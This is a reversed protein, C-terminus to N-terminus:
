FTHRIGFEYGTSAGGAATVGLGVNFSKGNDKNSIKAYNVYLASRKSLNYVYGLAIHNADNAVGSAKVTGYSARIQGAGVPVQVGISQARTKNGSTKNEGWLAMVRAVGFDYSGGINSQTLDGLSSIKTKTIGYAVSVPGNAYGIRLGTVKGDDATAGANSNNEGMAYMVQGFLGGMEPLHYGISNSARVHTVRAASPVPYFLFGSSGVGNTGFASYNSLNWFGPVYDRGLRIEGWSDSLSVTSRRGFTLGGGGAGGTAQNNTNTTGGTGEDPNIAAELWFSAKLGGGLDETGRFGLRSSLNGDTGLKSVSGSGDSNVRVYNVDVLGFIQVSSQAWAASGVFAAAVGVALPSLKM